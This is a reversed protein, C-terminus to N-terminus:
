AFKGVRRVKWHITIRDDATGEARISIGGPVLYPGFWGGGTRGPILQDDIWKEDAGLSADGDLDAGILLTDGTAGIITPNFLIEFADQSSLPLLIVEAQTNKVQTPDFRHYTPVEQIFLSGNVPDAGLPVVKSSDPDKGQGRSFVTIGM